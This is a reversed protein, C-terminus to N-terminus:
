NGFLINLDSKKSELEKQSEIIKKAQSKHFTAYQKLYIMRKYAQNFDEASIIFILDHRNGKKKFCTYIMKAYESKLLELNKQETKISQETKIMSQEIKQVQKSLLSIEINLTRLLLEQNQIQKDLVKLYNLSKYKDSKTKELLENTYRIEKEIAAKQKKLEEKTQSFASFSCLLVFFGFIFKSRRLM